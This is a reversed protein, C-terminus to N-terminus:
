ICYDDVFGGLDVQKPPTEEVKVGLRGMHKKMAILLDEESMDDGDLTDKASAAAIIKYLIGMINAREQPNSSTANYNTHITRAIGKPGGFLDILECAIEHLNVPSEKALVVREITDTLSESGKSAFANKAKPKREMTAKKAM